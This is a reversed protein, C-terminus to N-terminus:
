KTETPLRGELMEARVRRFENRILAALKKVEPVDRLREAYVIWVATPADVGFCRRLAPPQEAVIAPLVGIVGGEDVIARLASNSNAVHKVSAGLGAEALRQFVLDQCAIPHGTIEGPSLPPSPYDWSCYVGMPDDALKSRVIGPENPVLGGRLAIDAEGAQLDRRKSSIDIDVQVDPCVKWFRAVAPVVVFRTLAEDSSVRIQRLRTRQRGEARELFAEAAAGLKRAADILDLANESPVYRGTERSFLELGLARELANIRRACTTQDVKLARAARKTSGHDIVALFYRLDDWDIRM